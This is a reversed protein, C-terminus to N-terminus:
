ETPQKLKIKKLFDEFTPYKELFKGKRKALKNYFSRLKSLKKKYTFATRKRKRRSHKISEMGIMPYSGFARLVIFTRKRM